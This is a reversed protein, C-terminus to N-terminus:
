CNENEEKAIIERIKLVVKEMTAEEILEGNVEVFPGKNYNRGQNCHNMCRVETIEIRDALDEPASFELAQVQPAGMVFCATGACIKVQVKEM